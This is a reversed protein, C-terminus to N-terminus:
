ENNEEKLIKKYIKSLIKNDASTLEDIVFEISDRPNEPFEEFEDFFIKWLYKLYKKPYRHEELFDTIYDVLEGNTQSSM